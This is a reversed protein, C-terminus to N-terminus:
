RLIAPRAFSSTAAGVTKPPGCGVKTGSRTRSGPTSKTHRPSPSVAIEHPGPATSAEGLRRGDELSLRWLTDAAKNGVLLEAAPVSPAGMGLLVGLAAAALGAPPIRIM